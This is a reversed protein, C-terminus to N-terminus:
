SAQSVQPHIQRRQPEATFSYTGTLNASNLNDSGFVDVVTSATGIGTGLGYKEVSEDIAEEIAKEQAELFDARISKTLDTATAM